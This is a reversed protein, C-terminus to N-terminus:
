NFKSFDPARKELFARAAEKFEASTLSQRVAEAELAIRESTEAINARMLAKAQRLAGPPKTALTNATKMVTAMLDEPAVVGNIIGLSEAREASFTEGLLLMEAARVNGIARPLLLTSAFEPVIAINVFPLQFRANPVAYALDCHFLLTTGIGIAMGNVAAVVPKSFRSLRTMFKFVPADLSMPPNELFDRLDNGATFSDETGTIIVVRVSADKAAENLAATADAYMSTLLANKKDPRDFTLTLVRDKKETRINSAM